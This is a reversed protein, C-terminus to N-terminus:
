LDGQVMSDGGPSTYGIPRWDENAYRIIVEYTNLGFCCLLIDIDDFFVLYLRSTKKAIKILAEDPFVLFAHNYNVLDKLIM